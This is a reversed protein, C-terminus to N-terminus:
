SWFDFPRSWDTTKKIIGERATPEILYIFAIGSVIGLGSWPSFVLVLLLLSAIWINM